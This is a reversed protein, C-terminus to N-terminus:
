QLDAPVSAAVQARRQEAWASQKKLRRLRVQAAHVKGAFTANEQGYLRPGRSARHVEHRSRPSKAAM